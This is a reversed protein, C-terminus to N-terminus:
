IWRVSSVAPYAPRSMPPTTPYMSPLAGADVLQMRQSSGRDVSPPSNDLLFSPPMASADDFGEAARDAPRPWPSGSTAFPVSSNPPLLIEDDFLKEADFPRNCDVYPRDRQRRRQRKQSAADVAAHYDATDYTWPLPPDGLSFFSGGGGRDGGGPPVDQPLVDAQVRDSGRARTSLYDFSSPQQARSGRASHQSVRGSGGGPEQERAAGRMVSPPYGFTYQGFGGPPQQPQGVKASGSGPDAARPANVPRTLEPSLERTLARQQSAIRLQDALGHPPRPPHPQPAPQNALLRRDLVRKRTYPAPCPETLFAPPTSRVSTPDTNGASSSGPTQIALRRQKERYRIDAELLRRRKAAGRGRSPIGQAAFAEKPPLGRLGAGGEDPRLAKARARCKAVEAIWAEIRKREEKTLLPPENVQRPADELPGGDDFSSLLSLGSESM